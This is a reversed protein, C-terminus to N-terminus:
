PVGGTRPNGRWTRNKPCLWVAPTLCAMGAEGVSSLAGPCVSAHSSVKHHTSDPYSLSAANSEPVRENCCGPHDLSEERPLSRRSRQIGARMAPCSIHLMHKKRSLLTHALTRM